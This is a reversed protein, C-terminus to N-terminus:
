VAIGNVGNIHVASLPADGNVLCRGTRISQHGCRNMQVGIVRQHMERCFVLCMVLHDRETQTLCPRPQGNFDGTCAALGGNGM